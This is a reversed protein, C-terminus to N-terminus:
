VLPGHPRARLSDIVDFFSASSFMRKSGYRAAVERLELPGHSISKKTRASM